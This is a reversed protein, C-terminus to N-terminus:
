EDSSAGVEKLARLRAEQQETAAAPLKIAGKREM